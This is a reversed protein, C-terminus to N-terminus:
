RAAEASAASAIAEDWAPWGLEDLIGSRLTRALVGAMGTSLAQRVEAEAAALIEGPLWELTEFPGRRDFAGLTSTIYRRSVEAVWEALMPRGGPSEALAALARGEGPLRGDTPCGRRFAERFRADAELAVLDRREDRVGWGRLGLSAGEEPDAVPI